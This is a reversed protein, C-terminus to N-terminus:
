SHRPKLEHLGFIEKLKESADSDFLVDGALDCYWQAEGDGAKKRRLLESTYYARGEITNWEVIVLNYLEKNTLKSCGEM